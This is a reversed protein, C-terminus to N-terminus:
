REGLRKKRDFELIESKYEFYKNVCYRINKIDDLNIASFREHRRDYFCRIKNYIEETLDLTKKLDGISIAKLARVDKDNGYHAFVKNRYDKLISIKENNQDILSVCESVLVLIAKKDEHVPVVIEEGNSFIHDYFDGTFILNWNAKIYDFFKYFSYDNGKDYFAYLQVVAQAWFNYRVSQLFAPATKNLLDDEELIKLTEISTAICVGRNVFFECFKEFKRKKENYPSKDRNEYEIYSM